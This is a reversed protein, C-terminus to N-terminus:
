AVRPRSKTLTDTPPVRVWKAAGGTSITARGHPQSVAKM